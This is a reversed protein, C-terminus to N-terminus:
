IAHSPHDMSLRFFLATGLYRAFEHIEETTLPPQDHMQKANQKLKQVLDTLHQVDKDPWQSIPLSAADSEQSRYAKLLEVLQETYQDGAQLWLM